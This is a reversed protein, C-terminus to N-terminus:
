LAHSPPILPFPTPPPQIVDTIIFQYFLAAQGGVGAASVKRGKMGIALAFSFKHVSLLEETARRGM